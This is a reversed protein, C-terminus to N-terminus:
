PLYNRYRWRERGDDVTERTRRALEHLETALDRESRQRLNRVYERRDVLFVTYTNIGSQLVEDVVWTQGWIGHGARLRTGPTPIRDLWRSESSEPSVLVCYGGVRTQAFRSRLNLLRLVM